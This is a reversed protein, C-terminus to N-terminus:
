SKKEEPLLNRNIIIKRLLETAEPFTLVGCDYWQQASAPFSFEGMNKWGVVHKYLMECTNQYLEADNQSDNLMANFEAAMAEADRMSKSNAFFTPRTEKPKDKDIDLVVPFRRDPELSLPM